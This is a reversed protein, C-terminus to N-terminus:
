WAGRDHFFQRMEEVTKWTSAAANIEAIQAQEGTSLQSSGELQDMRFQQERAAAAQEPTPPKARKAAQTPKFIDSHDDLWQEVDGLEVHDPIVEIIKPSLNKRKVVETLDIARQRTLLQELQTKLATNENIINKYQKRLNGIGPSETVTEEDAETEEVFEPVEDEAM